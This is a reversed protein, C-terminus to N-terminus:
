ARATSAQAELRSKVTDLTTQFDRENLKKLLPEALKGILPIPVEYQLIVSLRCGGDCPEVQCTRTGKKGMVEYQEAFRKNPAFETVTTNISLRVGAMKYVEIYTMGKGQGKLDQVEIMSPVDEVLNRPNSLRAFVQEPSANIQISLESNIM